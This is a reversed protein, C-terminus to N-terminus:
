LSISSIFREDYNLYLYNLMTSIKLQSKLKTQAGSYWNKNGIETNGCSAIYKPLLYLLIFDVFLDTLM